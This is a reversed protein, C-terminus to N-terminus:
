RYITYDVAACNELIKARSFLIRNNFKRIGKQLFACMRVRAGTQGCASVDAPIQCSLSASARAAHPARGKITRKESFTDSFRNSKGTWTPTCIRTRRRRRPRRTTTNKTRIWRPSRRCRGTQSPSTSCRSIARLTRPTRRAPFSSLARRCIGACSSRCRARATSKAWSKSCM